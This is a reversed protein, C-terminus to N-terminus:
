SPRRCINGEEDHSADAAYVPSPLSFVPPPSAAYITGPLLSLIAEEKSNVKPFGPLVEPIPHDVRLLFAAVPELIHSIVPVAFANGSM